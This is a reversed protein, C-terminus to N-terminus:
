GWPCTEGLIFTWIYISKGERELSWTLTYVIDVLDFDTWSRAIDDLISAITYM